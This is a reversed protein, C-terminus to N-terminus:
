DFIDALTTIFLGGVIAGGILFILVSGVLSFKPAEYSSPEEVSGEPRTSHLLLGCSRCFNANDDNSAQCQPCQKLAM